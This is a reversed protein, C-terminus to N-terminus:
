KQAIVLLEEGLNKRLSIFFRELFLFYLIKLKTFKQKKESNLQLLEYSKSYIYNVGRVLSRANVIKFGSDTLSQTLNQLNFIHLHRPPELGRWSCKFVQHGLSASNPTVVVLRGSPKLIRFCEELLEKPNYVHEIVHSMYIADFTGQDYATESLDCCRVSLGKEKAMQVASDDFDIGEVQWGLEAMRQLAEGNGCGIELLKADKRPCADLFMAASQFKEAGLPYINGILSWIYREWLYVHRDSYGMSSELYLKTIEREAIRRLTKGEGTNQHTYYNKYAKSIEDKRPAPDLWILSCEINPCIKLNWTGSAQFLHDELDSYLEIGVSGCFDCRNKSFTKMKANKNKLSEDM